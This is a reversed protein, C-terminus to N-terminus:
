GRSVRVDQGTRRWPCHARELGRGTPLSSPGAPTERSLVFFCDSGSLNYPQMLADDAVVCVDVQLRSGTCLGPSIGGSGPVEQLLQTRYVVRVHVHVHLERYM